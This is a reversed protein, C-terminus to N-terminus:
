RKNIVTLDNELLFRMIEKANGEIVDESGYKNTFSLKFSQLERTEENNLLHEKGM